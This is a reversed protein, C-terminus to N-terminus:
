NIVKCGQALDSIHSHTTPSFYVIRPVSNASNAANEAPRREQPRASSPILVSFVSGKGVASRVGVTLGLVSALQRVTALGLGLGADDEAAAGSATTGRRFAEFIAEREDPPIGPGTDWIEIRLAGAAPRSGLLIGGTATYRLANSLINRLIRGLLQRDTTVTSSGPVYRFRLGRQKAQVQYEEALQCLLEAIPFTVPDPHVLGCEVATIDNLASLAGAMARLSGTTRDVLARESEASVRSRLATLFLEAAQLPQGLDHRIAAVFRSKALNAEDARHKARALEGAVRDREAIASGLILLTGGVAALMLQLELLDDVLPDHTFPGFGDITFWVAMTSMAVLALISGRPPLRLAAWVLVPIVFLAPSVHGMGLWAWVRDGRFALATAATVLALLSASEGRHSRSSELAPRGLWALVLPTMLVAGVFHGLWRVLSASLFEPWPSLGALSLCLTGVVSSLVAAAGAAAMVMVGDRPRTLEGSIGSQRLIRAGLLAGLTNGATIGVATAAPIGASLDAWLAGILLAPWLRSGWLAFAGMALGSTLWLPALTNHLTAMASGLQATASCVLTLLIFRLLLRAVPGARHM